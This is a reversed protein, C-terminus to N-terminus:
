SVADRSDNEGEARGSFCTAAGVILFPYNVKFLRKSKSPNRFDGEMSSIVIFSRSGARESVTLLMARHRERARKDAPQTGGLTAVFGSLLGINLTVFESFASLADRLVFSVASQTTL